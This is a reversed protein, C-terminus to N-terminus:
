HARSHVGTGGCAAAGCRNGTCAKCAPSCGLTAPQILLRWAHLLQLVLLLLYVCCEVLNVCWRLNRVLLVEAAVHM